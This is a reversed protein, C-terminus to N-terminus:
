SDHSQMFIPCQCEPTLLSFALAPMFGSVQFVHESFTENRVIIDLFLAIKM